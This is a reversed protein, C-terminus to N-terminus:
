PEKIARRPAFVRNKKQSTANKPAFLAELFLLATKPTLFSYLIFFGNASLAREKFASLV